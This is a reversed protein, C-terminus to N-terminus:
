LVTETNESLHLMNIMDVFQKHVKMPSFPPLYIHKVTLKPALRGCVPLTQDIKYFGELQKWSAVQIFM